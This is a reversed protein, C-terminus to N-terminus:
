GAREFVRLGEALTRFARGRHSCAHKEAASMEAFTKGDGEDPVFVPDYGFGGSGRPATTITGEVTGLAAVERGDPWRAIAVTAFRAARAPPAVDAMRELLLQVNEAYTARDGAYRGSRVGPEGRLADVELGTDDAIAPRGTHAAVATAKLRANEELTSGTEPIDHLDVPRPELEVAAGADRLVVAIEHAKDVNATALVFRLTSGPV